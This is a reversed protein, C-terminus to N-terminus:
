IILGAKRAGEAVAKVKGHYKYGSKDFVAAKIKKSLLGEAVRKGIERPIQLGTLGLSDIKGLDKQGVQLITVGNVDDIAQVSVSKNSRFISLRPRDASGNIKSRVRKKRRLFKNQIIKM